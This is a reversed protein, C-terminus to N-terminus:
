SCLPSRGGAVIAASAVGEGRGRGRSLFDVIPPLLFGPCLRHIAGSYDGPGVEETRCTLGLPWGAVIPVETSGLGWAGYLLATPM